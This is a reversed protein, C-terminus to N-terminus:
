GNNLSPYAYYTSMAGAILFTALMFLLLNAERANNSYFERAQKLM